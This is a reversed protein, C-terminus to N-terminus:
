NLVFPHFWIKHFDLWGFANITVGRVSKHFSTNSKKHVLYLISHTQRMLDELRALKRQREQEDPERIISEAARKVEEATQKDFASWFYNKQLYMELECAENNNFINGFLQGDALSSLHDALEYPEKVSVEVHVGFAECRERIWQADAEHYTTTVLHFPEGSYGSAALLALIDDRSHSRAAAIAEAYPPRPRFGYAPYIRDGGLDAVMQERDIIHHLAERFAPHNQPGTKWQNFVLLNSCSFLTEMSTWEGNAQLVADRQDKSTHGYSTMVSMWDPEKLSGLEMEPFILVEVRDLHPRGQFHATFAELVCIRENLQAIRFPGTGIPQRAFDAESKRVLEEPVISAPVTSLFNLLLYNSKKLRVRVTKHDIAELHEIDQLMWSPEFREPHLRLRDLSFVVDLATLERGHHFMVNKKLHFTWDRADSSSEWSHAICPVIKRSEQDYTVLTNFVQSVIHTDFAYYACCPDLTVISRYVPFRLTDHLKDSVVQTSFGMGESLWDLFFSKATAGGFRNMLEMAEKMEGLEMKTKAESVLLEDADALLTLKSTHGRGRGAQWSIWGLESLKRTILKAYRPTCHWIDSLKEVTVPFPVEVKQDTFFSRLELFHLVALMPIGKGFYFTFQKRNIM